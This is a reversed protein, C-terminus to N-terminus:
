KKPQEMQEVPDTYKGDVLYEFHLHEGEAAEFAPTGVTGIVQSANIKSGKKVSTESLGAYVTKKNGTHSITVVTGRSDDVTVDEVEGPLAAKVEKSDTAAIDIGNHTTWMNLTANYVLTEGSFAKIIEGDLPMVLKVSTSSTGRSEADNKPTTSPSPTPTPSPSPSLSPTPTPSPTSQYQQIEQTLNPAEQKQVNQGEPGPDKSSDSVALWSVIGVAAICLVLAIYFGQKKIFSAFRGKSKNEFM